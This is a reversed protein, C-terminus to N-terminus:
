IKNTTLTAVPKFVHLKKDNIKRKLMNEEFKLSYLRLYTM